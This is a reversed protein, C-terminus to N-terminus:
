NLFLLRQEIVDSLFLAASSVSIKTLFPNFCITMEGPERLAGMIKDKALLGL